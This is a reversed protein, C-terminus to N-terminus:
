AYRTNSQMNQVTWGKRFLVIICALINTQRGDPQKFLSFSNAKM